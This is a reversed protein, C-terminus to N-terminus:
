LEYSNRRKITSSLQNLRNKYFIFTILFFLALYLLMGIWWSTSLSSFYFAFFMLCMYIFNKFYGVRYKKVIYSEIVIYWVFMVIISAISISITTGLLFFAIFNAVISLLLIIISKVFFSMEKLDNKYYNHMVITVVSQLALGPLVIRFVPISGTYKPLFWNIFRIMPFYFVCCAFVFILLISSLIPYKKILVDNNTRKMTPYLVVSIASTITTILALLNYSFAYIAYTENDFLVNVFQRDVLLIFTSCLNAIMLPLGIRICSFIDEKIGNTVPKSFTINRYTVIYWITLVTNILVTIIIYWEFTIMTANLKYFIFLGIISFSSLLSQVINRITLENFRLTIQSIMQYYAVINTTLLYLALAVVLFQYKNNLFFVGICLFVFCFLLQTCIFFQSFFSFKNRDLCDFNKDGYKLYIGDTFGFQFIGVYTAYLTFTKYIGYDDIGMIKPILFAALVGSMLKIFNSISVKLISIVAKNNQLKTIEM